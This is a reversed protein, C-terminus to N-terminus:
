CLDQCQELTAALFLRDLYRAVALLAAKTELNKLPQAHQQAATSM